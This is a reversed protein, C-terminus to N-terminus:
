IVILYNLYKHFSYILSNSIILLNPFMKSCNIEKITSWMYHLSLPNRMFDNCHNHYPDISPVCTCPIVLKQFM